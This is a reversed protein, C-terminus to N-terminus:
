GRACRFAKRRPAYPPGQAQLSIARPSFPTMPGASSHVAPRIIGPRDAVFAVLGAPRRRASGWNAGGDTTVWIVGKGEFATDANGKRRRRQMMATILPRTDRYLEQLETVADRPTGGNKRWHVLTTCNQARPLMSVAILDGQLWCWGTPCCRRRTCMVRPISAARPRGPGARRTMCNRARRLM